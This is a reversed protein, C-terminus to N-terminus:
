SCVRQQSQLTGPSVNVRNSKPTHESTICEGLLCLLITFNVPSREATINCQFYLKRAKEQSSTDLGLFSYCM